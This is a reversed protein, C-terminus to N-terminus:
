AVDRIKRKSRKNFIHEMAVTLDTIDFVEGPCIDIGSLSSIDTDM